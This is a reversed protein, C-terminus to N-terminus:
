GSQRRGRRELLARIGNAAREVVEPETTDVSVAFQEESRELGHEERMQAELISLTADSPDNRQKSRERVRAALTEPEAGCSLIVCQADCDAAVRGLMSRDAHRLFAADVVVSLGASLCSRACQALREYTRHDFQPSYIGEGLRASASARAEIGALRKRELDSRIRVARLQPVLRESLWSKGSGSLGHMLIMTPHRPSSWSAAATLYRQVRPDLEEHSDAKQAARLAGVKARVLARYVAYFPLVRTGDYDGTEELYCSLLAFALDGRERSVLDMVVFAIDDMVDIWRLAPDFEICDFPVLRARWRVINAAHLDGHGERVFGSRERSEFRSQLSAMAAHTWDTIRSVAADTAIRLSTVQAALQTLNTVVLEHMKITRQPARAAEAVAANSHFQSLLTGLRTIQAIEVEGRALLAPLEDTASFQRMRVAYEIAPGSGGVVAHGAERSIPVVDLYLEPALRRNLRLEEECFHRRLQLTSADIFDLKVPKKIKYAFSGTLVVWSIHTERLEIEGTAHPFASSRLLERIELDTKAVAGSVDSESEATGASARADTM